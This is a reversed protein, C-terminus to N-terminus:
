SQITVRKMNWTNSDSTITDKNWAFKFLFIQIHTVPILTRLVDSILSWHTQHWVSPHSYGELSPSRFIHVTDDTTKQYVPNSFHITNTNKVRWHRWILMGGFALLCVAVTLCVSPENVSDIPWHTVRTNWSQPNVSRNSPHCVPGYSAPFPQFGAWTRCWKRYLPPCITLTHVHTFSCISLCCSLFQGRRSGTQTADGSQDRSPLAARTATHSLGPAIRSTAQPPATANLGVCFFLRWHADYLFRRSHFLTPRFAGSVCTRMDAGLTMHDPCACTYKPSRANILPAPLCLFECGGNVLATEKCWDRGALSM